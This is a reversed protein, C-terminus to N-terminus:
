KPLPSGFQYDSFSWITKSEIKKILMRMKSELVIEEPVWFGEIKFFREKMKVKVSYVGLNISPTELDVLCIAFDERNIGIEGKVGDKYGKKPFVKLLYLDGEEGAYEFRHGEKFVEYIEFPRMPSEIMAQADEKKITGKVEDIKQVFEDPRKFSVSGRAFITEKEEEDGIAMETRVRATYSDFAKEQSSIFSSVGKLIEDVSMALCINSLFLPAISIFIRLCVMMKLRPVRVQRPSESLNM